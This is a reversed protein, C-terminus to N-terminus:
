NHTLLAGECTPAEDIGKEEFLKLCIATASSYNMKVDLTSSSAHKATTVLLASRAAMLHALSQLSVAWHSLPVFSTPYNLLMVNLLYQAQEVWTEAYDCL